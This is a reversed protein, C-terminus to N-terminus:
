NQDMKYISGLKNRPISLMPQGHMLLSGLLKSAPGNKLQDLSQSNCNHEPLMMEFVEDYLHIYAKSCHGSHAALCGKFVDSYRCLLGQIGFSTSLSAMLDQAKSSMCGSFQATATEDM